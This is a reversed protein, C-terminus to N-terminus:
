NTELKQLIAQAGHIGVREVSLLVKKGAAASTMARTLVREVAKAKKGAALNIRDDIPIGEPSVVSITAGNFDVHTIRQEHQASSVSNDVNAVFQQFSIPDTSM